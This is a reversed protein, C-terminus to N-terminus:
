HTVTGTFTEHGNVPHASTDSADYRIVMRGNGRWGRYAGTGSVIRWPGRQTDGTPVQPDFGMRLTGDPCTFMRDVLGVGNTGHRDGITGGSCFPSDGISSGARIVVGSATM